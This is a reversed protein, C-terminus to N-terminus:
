GFEDKRVLGIFEIRCGLGPNPGRGRKPPNAKGKARPNRV